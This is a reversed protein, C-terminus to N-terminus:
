RFAYRGPAGAQASGRLLPQQGAQARRYLRPAAAVPSDPNRKLETKAAKLADMAAQPEPIRASGFVVITSEIQHEQLILEPKLLELQLRVPRLEDRLLFDPDQFALRYSPSQCHPAAVAKGAIRADEHASPFIRRRPPKAAM